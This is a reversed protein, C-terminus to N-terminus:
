ATIAQPPSQLSMASAINEIQKVGVDGDAGKMMTLADEVQSTSPKAALPEGHIFITDKGYKAEFDAQARATKELREQTLEFLKPLLAEDWHGTKLTDAYGRACAFIRSMGHGAFQSTLDPGLPDGLDLHSEGWCV